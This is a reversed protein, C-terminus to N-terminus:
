SKWAAINGCTKRCFSFGGAVRTRRNKEETGVADRLLKINSNDCLATISKAKQNSLQFLRRGRPIFYWVAKRSVKM